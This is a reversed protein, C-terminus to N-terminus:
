VSLRDDVKCAGQGQRMVSVGLFSAGRLFICGDRWSYMRMKPNAASNFAAKDAENLYTGTETAVGSIHSRTTLELREGQDTRLVVHMGDALAPELTTGAKNREAIYVNGIAIGDIEHLPPVCQEIKTVNM